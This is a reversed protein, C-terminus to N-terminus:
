RHLTSPSEASRDFRGPARHEAPLVDLPSADPPAAKARAKGRYRLRVRALDRAMTLPDRLIHIHSRDVARWQVPVEVIRYGVKQALMLIEVDFGFGDVQSMSFLVKAVDSRFAKFGCQPDTASISTVRRAYSGFSLHLLRRLPSQGIVESGDTARSGIVVHASQLAKLCLPLADLDTALDADMFVIADGHAATMGLRVAAGKGAHWPLRVLRGGPLEALESQAVEVTRDTSADDVIILEFDDGWRESAARQRLQELTQHLREEENYAPVIISTLPRSRTADVHAEDAKWSPEPGVGGLSEHVSIDEALADLPDAGNTRRGM